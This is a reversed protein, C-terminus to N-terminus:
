NVRSGQTPLARVYFSVTNAYSANITRDISQNRKTKSVLNRLTVWAPRCSVLRFEFQYCDKQRLKKLVLTM